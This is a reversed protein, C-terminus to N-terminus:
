YAKAINFNYVTGYWNLQQGKIQLSIQMSVYVGTGAVTFSLTRGVEGGWQVTNWLPVDWQPGSNGGSVQVGQPNPYSFDYGIALSISLTGASSYYLRINSVKKKNSVDLITNAVQCFLQIAVGNDDFGSDGQNLTTQGGFFLNQNLVAFFNANWGTYKCAAGTLVNIVWQHAVQNTVEPINIIILGGRPYSSISFGVNGNYTGYDAVIGGSLKSQALDFEGDEGTYKIVDSIKIVDQKTLVMIDGGFQAACKKGIIPPMNYIGILAWNDADGPNSGQYIIVEGSDLIFVAYDQPGNSAAQSMTKVEILKGGTLSVLSLPFLAFDGAIGNVDGYFFDGMRSDWMYLRSKHKHIGDIRSPGYTALDGTFVPTTLNTGDFNQPADAGNVIVVNAGVSAGEWRNNNFGSALLTSTGSGNDSFVSGGAGVLMLKTSAFTYPVGSELPASYGSTGIIYGKRSLVGKQQPLINTLQIADTPDMAALSDRTNIGGIPAQITKSRSTAQLLKPKMSRPITPRM